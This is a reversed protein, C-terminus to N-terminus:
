TQSGNLMSEFKKLDRYMSYNNWLLYGHNSTIEGILEKLRELDETKYTYKYMEKGPPKGHLRLYSISTEIAPTLRFPDTCHILEHRGCVEKIIEPNELWKGRPEWALLFDERDIETFFNKLNERNEPDISFSPPSQLLIVESELARAIEKVGGFENVSKESSFRDKHTITKSAKVTFKFDENVERALRKWKEATKVQPLNYFTKNVEVLDFFDAYAQVKHDYIEKWDSVDGTLRGSEELFDDPKFYGWSCCGQMLMVMVEFSLTM